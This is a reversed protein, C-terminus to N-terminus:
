GSPNELSLMGTNFDYAFIEAYRGWDIMTRLVREAEKDSLHDELKSLFREESAHNGRREDLIQRIYRALPVNAVLQHAFLQKKELLSANAYEKGLPTLQIDGASVNAFGLIELTELLPFLDDITMSIDDALEPLDIRDEFKPAAMTEVLGSLVSPDVDPLRYGIGIKREAPRRQGKVKGRSTMLTYINDVINLFEKSQVNRPHPLDVVLEAQV